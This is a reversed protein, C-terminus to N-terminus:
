LGIKAACLLYRVLDGDSQLTKKLISSEPFFDREIIAELAEVYTDEELAVKRILNTTM